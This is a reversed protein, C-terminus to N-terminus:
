GLWLNAQAQEYASFESSTEGGFWDSKVQDSEELPVFDGDLGKLAFLFSKTDQNHSIGELNVTLRKNNAMQMEEKILFDLYSLYGGLTPM